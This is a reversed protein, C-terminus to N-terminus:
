LRASVFSLFDESSMESLVSRAFGEVQLARAAKDCLGRCAMYFLEDKNPGSVACGHSCEVDNAEIELIPSADVRATKALQLTRCSQYAKTKQAEKGVLIEGIFSARASGDVINKVDIRSTAGESKHRQWTRLDHWDGSAANQLFSMHADAGEGLLDMAFERRIAPCKSCVAAGRFTSNAGMKVFLMDFLRADAASQAFSSFDVHAGDQIDMLTEKLFLGGRPSFDATCVELRSNIGAKIYLGLAPYKSSDWIVLVKGRAGEPAEISINGSDSALALFIDGYAGRERALAKFREIEGESLETKFDGIKLARQGSVLMESDACLVCGFGDFAGKSASLLEEAGASVASDSGDFAGTLLKEASQASWGKLDSFRWDQNKRDPFRGGSFFERDLLGDM